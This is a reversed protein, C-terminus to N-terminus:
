LLCELPIFWSAVKSFLLWIFSYTKFALFVKSVHLVFVEKDEEEASSAPKSKKAVVTSDPVSTSEAVVGARNAPVVALMSPPSLINHTVIM